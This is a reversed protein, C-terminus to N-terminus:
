KTGIEKGAAGHFSRYVTIRAGHFSLLGSERRPIEEVILRSTSYHGAAGNAITSGPCNGVMLRLNHRGTSIPLGASEFCFGTITTPAFIDQADSSRISTALDEYNSCPSGDIEVWWKTCCDTCGTKRFNGEWTVRLVTHPHDKTFKRTTVTGVNRERNDGLNPFVYQCYSPTYVFDAPAM